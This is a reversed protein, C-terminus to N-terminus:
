HLVSCSITSTLLIEDIKVFGNHVSFSDNTALAILLRVMDLQCQKLYRSLAGTCMPSDRVASSSQEVVLM